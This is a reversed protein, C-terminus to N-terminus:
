VDSQHVSRKVTQIIDDIDSEPEFASTTPNSLHARSSSPSATNSPIPQDTMSTTPQPSHRPPVRREVVPIINAVISPGFESTLPPQRDFQPPVPLSTASFTAQCPQVPDAIQRREKWVAPFSSNTAPSHIRSVVVPPVQEQM